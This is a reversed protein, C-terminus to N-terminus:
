RSPPLRVDSPNASNLVKFIGRAIIAVVYPPSLTCADKCSSARHTRSGGILILIIIITLAVEPCPCTVSTAM